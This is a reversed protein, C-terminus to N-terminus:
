RDSRGTGFRAALRGAEFAATAAAGVFLFFFAYVYPLRNRRVTLLLVEFREKYGLPRTGSIPSYRQHSKGYLWMKRHWGYWDDIELHRVQMDPVFEAADCGYATVLRCALIVDGGRAREPFPGCREFGERRVAFNNTYAYYLRSDRKTYVYRAKENEYDAMSGLPFLENEFRRSGLLFVTKENAFAQLIRELWDRAVECDADTFALIRGKARQVGANRAAYSGAKREQIVTVDGFQGAIEASRDTSNNDVVIIEFRDAPLSQARLSEICQVLHAQENYFPVIVSIDMEDADRGPNGRLM